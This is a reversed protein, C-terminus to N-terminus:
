RPRCRIGHQPTALMLTTITQLNINRSSFLQFPPREPVTHPALVKARATPGNWATPPAEDGWGWTHSRAPSSCPHLPRVGVQFSGAVLCIMFDAEGYCTERYLSSVLTNVVVPAQQIRLMKGSVAVIDRSLRHCRFRVPVVPCGCRRRTYSGEIQARQEM